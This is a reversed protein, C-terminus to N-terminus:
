FFKSVGASIVFGTYDVDFNLERKGQETLYDIGFKSQSMQVRGEMNLAITPKLHYLFGLIAHVGPQLSWDTTEQSSYPQNTDVDTLDETYKAYPVLLSFGGGLYTQFENVSADQFYFLGTAEIAFLLVEFQREFRLLPLPVTDNPVPDIDPVDQGNSESQLISLGSRARVAFQPHVKMVYCADVTPAAGFDETKTQDRLPDDVQRDLFDWMEQNEAGGLLGVTVSFYRKPIPGHYKRPKLIPEAFLSEPPSLVAIAICAAVACGISTRSNM